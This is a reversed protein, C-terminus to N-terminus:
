TCMSPSRPSRRMPSGSASRHITASPGLPSSNGMPCRCERLLCLAVEGAATQVDYDGEVGVAWLAGDSSVIVVPDRVRVGDASTDFAKLEFTIEAADAADVLPGTLDGPVGPGVPMWVAGLDPIVSRDVSVDGLFASGRGGAMTAYMSVFGPSGALMRHFVNWVNEGRRALSAYIGFADYTRTWLPQSRALWVRWWDAAVGGGGAITAGVWQAQGEVV